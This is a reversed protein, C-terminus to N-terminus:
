AHAFSHALRLDPRQGVHLRPALLKARNTTHAAECRRVHQERARSMAIDVPTGPLSWRTESHNKLTLLIHTDTVVMWCVRLACGLLLCAVRGLTM